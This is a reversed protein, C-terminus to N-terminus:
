VTQCVFHTGPRYKTFCQHQRDFFCESPLRVVYRCRYKINHILKEYPSGKEVSSILNPKLDM